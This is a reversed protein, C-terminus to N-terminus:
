EEQKPADEQHHRWIVFKTWAFNWFLGIASAIVLAIFYSMKLLHVGAAVIAASGLIASWSSAHFQILLNKISKNTRNKYTWNHHWVFNHFLAIESAILQAVFVNLHWHKYLLALLGFNILFGLAGVFCFRVFDIKHLNRIKGGIYVFM